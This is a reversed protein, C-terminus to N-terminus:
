AQAEQSLPNYGIAAVLSNRHWQDVMGHLANDRKLSYEYLKVADDVSRLGFSLDEDNWGLWDAVIALRERVNLARFNKVDKMSM